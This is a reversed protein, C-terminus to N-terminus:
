ERGQLIHLLNEQDFMYKHQGDMYAVYNIYDIRTTNNYAPKYGFFHNRDLEPNDSNLYSDIYLRANPVCISFVGGPILVRLCEDFFIQGEQYTLHEFFHSSYLKSISEKPFPIGNRM